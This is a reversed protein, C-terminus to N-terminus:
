MQMPAAGSQQDFIVAEEELAVQLNRIKRGLVELATLVIDEPRLVGTGEVKFIFTDQKQKITVLGPKGMEEAKALVEGDYMYLEPNAVEVWHTLRNLKFTNRPDAACWEEKQEDTLTDMLAHNISIEPLFQYVCTAVPMWKAHDKATGKRAVARLKLEQGRRMKVLLIGKDGPDHYGVPCIDPFHPDLQLDRSTVSLTDEGTCRVDLAFNVDLFDEDDAAEYISKMEHVRTSVLPILGLRHALFEDNLVTTNNEFEVLEIAITPVEVLIIRRLANAMSVDTNKLVFECYDDTLKRLEVQAERKLDHDGETPGPCHELLDAEDEYRCGCYLCYSHRGRLRALLAALQNAPPTAAWAEWEAARAREEDGEGGGEGGAAAAAAAEHQRRYLAEFDAAEERGARVAAGAEARHCPEAAELLDDAAAGGAAAVDAAAAAPPQQWMVNHTVGTATDLTECVQQAKRLQGELRRAAAAAAARAQYAQRQDLRAAEAGVVAAAARAAAEQERQRAAERAAAKKSVAGLGMKDQKLLLPLPEALGTGERGIRQGERYGMAALLKFGKNDQGLPQSLAEERKDAASLKQRKRAGGDQQQQQQQLVAAVDAAAQQEYRLLLADLDVEEEEPSGSAAADATSRRAASM